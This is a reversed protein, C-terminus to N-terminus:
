QCKNAPSLLNGSFRKKRGTEEGSLDLFFLVPCSMAPFYERVMLEDEKASLKWHINRLRDGQQYERIQFQETNYEEAGTFLYREQEMAFERSRVGMEVSVPFIEPLVTVKESAQYSKKPLPLNLVGLLDFCRVKKLRVVAKGVYRPQWLTHIEASAYAQGHRKGAVSAYFVTKKKKPRLAYSESLQISIKGTPLKSYNYIVIRIPIKKHFETIGLPADIIVKLKFFVICNYLFLLLVIFIEAYALFVLSKSNYIVAMYFTALVILVFDVLRRM